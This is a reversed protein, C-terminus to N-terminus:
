IILREGNKQTTQLPKTLLLLSSHLAIIPKLRSNEVLHQLRETELEILPRAVYKQTHQTTHAHFTFASPTALHLGYLNYGLHSISTSSLWPYAVM